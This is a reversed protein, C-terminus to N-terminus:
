YKKIAVYIFETRFETERLIDRMLNITADLENCYSSGYLRGDIGCHQAPFHKRCVKSDIGYFSACGSKNSAEACAHCLEIVDFFRMRVFSIEDSCVDKGHKDNFWNTLAGTSSGLWGAFAMTQNRETPTSVFFRKYASRMETELIVSTDQGRMSRIHNRDYDYDCRFFAFYPIQKNM